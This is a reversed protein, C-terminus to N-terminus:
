EKVINNDFNLFTLAGALLSKVFNEDFITQTLKRSELFTVREEYALYGAVFENSNQFHTQLSSYTDIDCDFKPDLQTRISLFDILKYRMERPVSGLMTNLRRMVELGNVSLRQNSKSQPWSFDSHSFDKGRIRDLFRIILDKPPANEVYPIVSLSDGFM